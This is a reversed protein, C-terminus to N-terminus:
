RGALTKLAKLIDNGDVPCGHGGLSIAPKFPGHFDSGCTALLGAKEAIGAYYGNEGAKHYSSYAEIGDIGCDIIGGMLPDGETLNSGPHALVAVGGNRKILAVAEELPIYDRLSFAANGPALYDFYFNFDPMDSRGGGDLYPVSLGREANVPNRVILNSIMAEAPQGGDAAKLVEDWSIEFGIDKLKDIMKPFVELEARCARKYLSEFDDSRYDIFYGLLHFITGGFVTDMEIGPIFDIGFGGALAEGEENAAVMNHDTLAAAKIGLDSCRSFIYEVSRDADRSYETHIHLDIM